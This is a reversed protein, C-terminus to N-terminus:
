QDPARVLRRLPAALTALTRTQRAKLEVLLLPSFLEAPLGPSSCSRDFSCLGNFFAPTMYLVAGGM